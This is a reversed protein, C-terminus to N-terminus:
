DVRELRVDVEREVFSWERTSRLKRVLDEFADADSADYEFWTLFDFPEGLDRAHYLQRAVAPLYDLGIATHHSQAEFIDRREDQAMQWWVESKKIPILAARRTAPRGLAEQRARLATLEALTAYRLNSIQGHLRWKAEADQVSNSVQVIDLHSAPDLGAGCVATTSLIRWRGFNGGVFAYRNRM